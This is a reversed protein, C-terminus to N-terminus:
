HGELDMESVNDSADVGVTQRTDALAATSDKMGNTDLGMMTSEGPPADTQSSSPRSPRPTREKAPQRLLRPPHELNLVDLSALSTPTKTEPITKNAATWEGIGLEEHALRQLQFVGNTGWELRSHPSLKGRTQMFRAVPEIFISLLIIPLGAILLFSLGFVSSSLHTTSIAPQPVNQTQQANFPRQTWEEPYSPPPWNSWGYLDGLGAVAYELNCQKPGCYKSTAVPGDTTSYGRSAVEPSGINCSAEAELKGVSVKNGTTLRALWAYALGFGFLAFLLSGQLFKTGVHDTSIDSCPDVYLRM